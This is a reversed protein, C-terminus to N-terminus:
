PIVVNDLISGTGTCNGFYTTNTLTLTGGGVAALIGSDHNGIFASNTISLNHGYSEVYTGYGNTSAGNMFSQVKTISVLNKSYVFLGAMQAHSGNGYNYKFLGGTVTVTGSGNGSAYADLEAGDGNNNNATIGNVVINGKSIVQLGDGLLNDNFINAGLTNLINVNGTGVSNDLLAGYAGNGNATVHNLIIAGDTNVLLGRLNQNGNFNSRTITVPKKLGPTINIIAGSNTNNLANVMDLTIDVQNFVRLGTDNENATVNVLSATGTVTSLDFGYYGTTANGNATSHSVSIAGFSDVRLGTMGNNSFINTFTGTTNVTVLPKALGYHNAVYAGNNTNGEATINTLVVPGTVYIELGHGLNNNFVGNSVTVGRASAVGAGGINVGDSGNLQATVGSLSVTGNTTILLGMAGNNNFSSNTVSIGATGTAINNLVAGDTESGTAFSVKVTNLTIQGKSSVEVGIGGGHNVIVNTLTVPQVHSSDAYTNDVNLPQGINDNFTGGTLVVTGKTTIFMGVNGNSNATINTATVNSNGSLNSISLGNRHNNNAVTQQLNITGSTSIWLGDVTNGNFNSNTKAPDALISVNGLTAINFGIFGNDNCNIGAANINGEVTANIGDGKNNSASITTLTLPQTTITNGANIGIRGNTNANVRTLSIGGASVIVLGYRGNGNIKYLTPDTNTLSVVGTSANSTNQISVGDSTSTITPSSPEGGSTDSMWVTYWGTNDGSVRIQYIGAPLSPNGLTPATGTSTQGSVLAYYSPLPFPRPVKKWLSLQVTGLSHVNIYNDTPSSLTFNWQDQGDYLADQIEDGNNIDGSNVSNGSADINKLTVAGSTLISFGTAQNDDAFISTATVPQKAANDNEVDIGGGVNYRATVNNLIVASNTYIVLGTRSSSDTEVNNVTVPFVTPPDNELYINTNV